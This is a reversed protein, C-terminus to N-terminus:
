PQPPAPLERWVADHSLVVPVGTDHWENKYYYMIRPYNPGSDWVVVDRGGVPPTACPTWLGREFRDFLDLIEEPLLRRNDMWAGHILEFAQDLQRERAASQPVRATADVAEQTIKLAEDFIDPEDSM